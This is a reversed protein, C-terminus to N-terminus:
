RFLGEWSWVLFVGGVHRVGGVRRRGGEREGGGVERLDCLVVDCRGGVVALICLLADDVDANAAEVAGVQGDVDVVDEGLEVQGVPGDATDAHGLPVGGHTVGESGLVVEVCAELAAGFSVLGV